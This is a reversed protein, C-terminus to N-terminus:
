DRAVLIACCGPNPAGELVVVGVKGEWFANFHEEREDVVKAKSEIPPHRIGVNWVMNMSTITKGVVEEVVIKDGGIWAM